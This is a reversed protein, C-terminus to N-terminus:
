RVGIRTPWQQQTAAEPRQLAASESRHDARLRGGGAGLDGTTRATCDRLGGETQIQRPIETGRARQYEAEYNRTGTQFWAWANQPLTWGSAEGAVQRSGTGASSLALRIRRRVATSGADLEVDSGAHRIPVRYARCQNTAERKVGRVVFKEEIVSSTAAGLTVGQGLDVGDVTIGLPSADFVRTGARDLSWTLRGDPASWVQARVTGSPSELQLTEARLWGSLALFLGATLALLRRQVAPSSPSRQM